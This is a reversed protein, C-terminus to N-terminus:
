ISDIQREIFKLSKLGSRLDSEDLRKIYDVSYDSMFNEACERLYYPLSSGIRPSSLKLVRDIIIAADYLNTIEKSRIKDRLKVSLRMFEKMLEVGYEYESGLNLINNYSTKFKSLKTTYSKLLNKYESKVQNLYYSPDEDRENADFLDHIRGLINYNCGYFSTILGFEDVLIKLMIPKLNTIDDFSNGLKFRDVLQEIRKTYNIQKIQDDTMLATAGERSETRGKRIEGLDEEQHPLFEDLYFIIAFDSDKLKREDISWSSMDPDIREPRELYGGSYSLNFSNVDLEEEEKKVDYVVHLPEDSPKYIHLKYHDDAINSLSSFLHWSGRKYGDFTSTRDFNDGLYNDDEDYMYYPTDGNVSNSIFYGAQFEESSNYSNFIKGWKPNGGSDTKLCVTDGTKLISYDKVPHLEGTKIEDPNNGQGGTVLSLLSEIEYEDFPENREKSRNKGKEKSKKPTLSYGLYGDEASFWFKVCWLGTPNNVDVEPKILLAQKRLVNTKFWKDSIEGLSIKQDECFVKLDNLFKNSSSKLGSKNLWGLTKSLSIASFGENLFQNRYKLYKM